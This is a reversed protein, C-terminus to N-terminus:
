KRIKNKHIKQYLPDSFGLWNLMNKAMAENNLAITDYLKIQHPYKVLLKNIEAYYFDYYAEIAECINKTNNFKPYCKDYPSKVYKTGDHDWWHNAPMCKILYSECCERKDRKLCVFKVKDGFLEIFHEVYYLHYFSVDGIFKQNILKFPATLARITENDKSFAGMKEHTVFTNEQADLLCALSQTGCRGSGLGIIIQKEM